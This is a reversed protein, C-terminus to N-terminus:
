LAASTSACNPAIAPVQPEQWLTNLFYDGLSVFFIGILYPRYKKCYLMFNLLSICTQWDLLALLCVDLANSVRHLKHWYVSM